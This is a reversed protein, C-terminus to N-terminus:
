NYFMRNFFEVVNTDKQYANEPIITRRESVYFMGVLLAMVRDFNGDFNFRILEELLAPDTIYHLRLKTFGDEMIKIPEILWDRLYIEGQQKVTASMTLGYSVSTISRRMKQRKDLIDLEPILYQLKRNVKAYQIVNGRNNEFGIMANYYKALMFLQRNYHDQTAPRGVYSAVICGALTRSTPHPMKIVYAAGLSIATKDKTQDKAYPDHVIIYMDKPVRGGVRVPAELMSICGTLNTAEDHPFKYIAPNDTTPKFKVNGNADEYLIGQANSKYLKKANVINLREQLEAIPFINAQLNLTAEKPTFPFEATFQPLANNDKAEKRIERQAELYEKAGETDSNGNVDIFGEFNQYAPFFFCAKTGRAGTDWINEFALCGYADPDYFMESLGEFDSDDAGGTGFAIMMGTVNVGKEYSSRCVEWAKKLGPLRGAEEFVGLNGAKGRAKDPDDKLTIGHIENMSGKEVDVGLHPIRYGAKKFLKQDVLRPQNFATNSDMFNMGRFAKTLFGDKILYEEMDAMAYCRQNKGTNFRRTFMSAIKYSFGKRRAKLIVMHKGMERAMKVSTFFNYDGDWFSPFGSIEEATVDMDPNELDETNLRLIPNYNLYFYHDGPLYVDGFKVGNNIRKLEEDWYDFYGQTGPPYDTYYGYESFRRGAESYIHSNIFKNEPLIIM